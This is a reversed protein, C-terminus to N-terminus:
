SNKGARRKFNLFFRAFFTFIYFEEEKQNARTWQSKWRIANCVSRNTHHTHGYLTNRLEAFLLSRRCLAHYMLLVSYTTNSDREHSSSYSSSTSFLFKTWAVFITSKWPWCFARSFMCHTLYRFLVFAYPM